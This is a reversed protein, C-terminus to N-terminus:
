AAATLAADLRTLDHAPLVHRALTLLAAFAEPPMSRRAGTLLGVRTPHDLSLLIWRQTVAAENPPVTALLARRCAEIEEVSCCELIAPMVTREEDLLHSLYAGALETALRYAHLGDAASANAAAHAVAEAAAHQLGDITHHDAHLAATAGPRHAELMAFIFDDEHLAHATLQADLETWKATADGIATPDSWDTRGLLEVAGFLGHRLGKHVHTFLDPAPPSTM